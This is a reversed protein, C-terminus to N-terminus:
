TQQNALSDLHQYMDLVDHADRIDDITWTRLLADPSSVSYRPSALIRHM